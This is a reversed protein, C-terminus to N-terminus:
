RVSKCRKCLNLFRNGKSLEAYVNQFEKSQIIDELSQQRLNGFTCERKWDRCCLLLNGDRSVIIENLPAYCPTNSNVEPQGYIELHDQILTTLVVSHTIKFNLNSLRDFDNKSYASIQINTLGSDVLEDLLEQNLIRGNTSFYIESKPCSKRAYEIFKFLRPDSLPESYTHFAITKDFSFKKLVDIVDFVIKSPLFIIDKELSLPCVKHIHSMNCVNSTEFSVRSTNKFLDM